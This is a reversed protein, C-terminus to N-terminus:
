WWCLTFIAVGIVDGLVSLDFGEPCRARRSECSDGVQAVAEGDRSRRVLGAGDEHLDPIFINM